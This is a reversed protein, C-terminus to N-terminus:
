AAGGGASRVIGNLAEDLGIRGSLYPNWHEELGALFPRFAKEYIGLTQGVHQHGPDLLRRIAEGATWYLLARPLVAPNPLHLVKQRERLLFLAGKDNGREEFEIIRGLVLLLTELLDLGQFRETEVITFYNGHFARTRHGVQIYRGVLDIVLRPLGLPEANLSTFLFQMLRERMPEFQRKIAPDVQQLRRAELAPWDSKEYVPLAKRLAGAVARGTPALDYQRYELPFLLLQSQLADLDRSRAIYSEMTFWIDLGPVLFGQHRYTKVAEAYPDPPDEKARALRRLHTHLSLFKSWRFQIDLDRPGTGPRGAAVAPVAGSLPTLYPLGKLLRTTATAIAGGLFTRRPVGGSM